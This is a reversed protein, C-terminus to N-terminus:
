VYKRETHCNSKINITQVSIFYSLMIYEANIMRYKGNEIMTIRENIFRIKSNLKHDTITTVVALKFLKNRM